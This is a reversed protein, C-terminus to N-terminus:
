TEDVKDDAIPLAVYLTSGLDKGASEAWIRGGHAAVLAHCIALDAGVGGFRRTMSGDIQFFPEFIQTLKDYPIGIGHDQIAIVVAEGEAYARVRVGAGQPSFKIANDLLSGLVQNIAALDAELSEQPLPLELEIHVHRVDLAVREQWGRVLSPLWHALKIPTRILTVDHLSRLSVLQDVKLRLRESNQLMVRVAQKQDFALIGLANEDLLHLYGDIVSLPTRLEHSVNQIIEEKARLASQLQAYSQHLKQQLWAQHTAIALLDGIECAIDLHEYGFAAVQYSALVFLGVFRGAAMLPINACSRIKENALQQEIWSLDDLELLDGVLWSGNAQREISSRLVASSCTQRPRLHTEGNADAILMLSEGSDPNYLIVRAQCFPVLQRIRILAAQAIEEPSHAALISRQIESMAQLQATSQSLAAQRRKDETIDAIVVVSAAPLEANQSASAQLRILLYRDLRPDYMEIKEQRGDAVVERVKLLFEYLSCHQSPCARHLLAHLSVGRVAKVDGLQWAEVTRNARVIRGCDDVLCVLEPLADVTAEWEQKAREIQEFTRQISQEFLTPTIGKAALETNTLGVLEAQSAPLAANSTSGPEVSEMERSPYGQMLGRKSLGKM